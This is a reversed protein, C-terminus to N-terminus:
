YRLQDKMQAALDILSTAELDPAQMYAPCPQQSRNIYAARLGAAKAGNCDWPHVAVLMVQLM